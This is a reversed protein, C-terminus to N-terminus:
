SSNFFFLAKLSVLTYCFCEYLVIVSSSNMCFESANVKEEGM